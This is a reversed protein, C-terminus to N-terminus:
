NIYNFRAFAYGHRYFCFANNVESNQYVIGKSWLEKPEKELRASIYPMKGSAIEKEFHAMMEYFEKGFVTM